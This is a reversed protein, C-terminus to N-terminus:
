RRNQPMNSIQWFMGSHILQIQEILREKEQNICDIMLKKQTELDINNFLSSSDKLTRIFPDLSHAALFHQRVFYAFGELLARRDREGNDEEFFDQRNYYNIM